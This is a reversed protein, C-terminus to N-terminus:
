GGGTNYSSSFLLGIGLVNHAVSTGGPIRMYFFQGAGGLGWQDSMWWEKGLLGNLDFGGRATSTNGTFSTSTFALGVGVSGFINSAPEFGTVAVGASGVTLHAKSEGVERGGMSVLPNSVGYMSLDAGVAINERVF